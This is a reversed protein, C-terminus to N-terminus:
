PGRRPSCGAFGHHDRRPVLDAAPPVRFRGPDPARLPDSATGGIERYRVALHPPLLYYFVHSGDLPPIPLLNFIILLVNILVGYQFMSIMTRWWEVQGPMARALWLVAVILLAFLFALILNSAVGALSVLIDGRKYNRYNRPNVPVPKAWGLLV